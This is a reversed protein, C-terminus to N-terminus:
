FNRIDKILDSANKGSNLDFFEIRNRKNIIQYLYKNRKNTCRIYYIKIFNNLMEMGEQNYMYLNLHKELMDPCHSVFSHVYPSIKGPNVILYFKLWQKLEIRLINFDINEKPYEIMKKYIDYFKKWVFDENDLNLTPFMPVFEEGQKVSFFNSLENGNESLIKLINFRENGNLSRMKIEKKGPQNIVNFPKNIKCVEKLIFIFQKLIPREDIKISEKKNDLNNMKKILTEFLMDTIRLLLHLLDIVVEEFKIFDIIPLNKYGLVYKSKPLESAGEKNKSKKTKSTKAIESSSNIEKNFSRVAEEYSRSIPWNDNVDIPNRVDIKCWPCPQNSTANNVGLVNVLFVLDGGLKFKIKHHVEIGKTDKIILGNEHLTKIALFM